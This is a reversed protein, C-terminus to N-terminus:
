PRAPASRPAASGGLSAVPGGGEVDVEQELLLRRGPRVVSDPSAHSPSERDPASPPGHLDKRGAPADRHLLTHAPTLRPSSRFGEVHIRMRVARGNRLFRSM